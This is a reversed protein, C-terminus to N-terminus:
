KEEMSETIAAWCPPCYLTVKEEKVVVKWSSVQKRNKKDFDQDCVSCKDSLRDFMNLKKAMAKQIKKMEKQQKRAIKRELKSM